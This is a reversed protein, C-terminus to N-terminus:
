AEVVDSAAWIVCKDDKVGAGCNVVEEMGGAERRRDDVERDREGVM